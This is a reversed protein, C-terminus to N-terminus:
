DTAPTLAAAETSAGPSVVLKDLVFGVPVTGPVTGPVLGQGLVVSLSVLVTGPM